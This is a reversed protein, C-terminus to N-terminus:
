PYVRVVDGMRLWDYIYRADPIPVRLCGHSANYPPVSVYGHIAYGRIFYSSDVMGIANTGLDKRYVQFRGLVTPTAPAGTSTHYIRHVKGGKILALVQRSIDAEVHRGDRPYRVNFAGRGRLVGRVVEESASYNRANGTVKRWAMVARQTGSDYVGSRPVAYHLKALGKQLLRVLTGSSGVQPKLINVRVAASRIAELEPTAQHIARVAIRGDKRSTYPTLFTGVKGGRWPLVKETQQHILKGRRRFQVTVTQGAVYPRLVGRVRWADNTLEVRRDGDRMVKQAQVTLEGEAPV